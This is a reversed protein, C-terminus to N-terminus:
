RWPMKRGKSPSGGFCGDATKIAANMVHRSNYVSSVFPHADAIKRKPSHLCFQWCRFLFFLDGINNRYHGCHVTSAYPKIPKADHCFEFSEFSIIRGCKNQSKSREPTSATTLKETTAWCQNFPSHETSAYVLLFSNNRGNFTLFSIGNNSLKM